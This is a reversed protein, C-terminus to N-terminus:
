GMMSEYIEKCEPCVPFKKPDRGPTWVKGCLAIVPEGSLASEMIKEKQVYHAFREHDGAEVGHTTETREITSTGGRTEESQEVM